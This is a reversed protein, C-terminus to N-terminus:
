SVSTVLDTNEEANQHKNFVIMGYSVSIHPNKYRM